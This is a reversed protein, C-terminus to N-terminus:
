HRLLVSNLFIDEHSTFYPFEFLFTNFLFLYFVNEVFASNVLRPASEEFSDM